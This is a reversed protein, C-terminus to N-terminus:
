LPVIGRGALLGDARERPRTEMYREVSPLYLEAWLDEDVDGDRARHAQRLTTPDSEVFLRLDYRDCSSPDLVSCGEVILSRSRDVTRAERAIRQTAWDYPRYSAHGEIRLAQVVRRFEEMRFFPFPFGPAMAVPWAARPLFFDDFSLVAVGLAAQVQVAITSKGSLPLGDIAVVRGGPTRRFWGEVEALSMAVAV